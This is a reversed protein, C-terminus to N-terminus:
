LLMLAAIKMLRPDIKSIDASTKWPYTYLGWHKRITAIAREWTGESYPGIRDGIQLEHLLGEKTALIPDELAVGFNEEMQERTRHGYSDVYMGTDPHRLAVHGLKLESDSNLGCDDADCQFYVIPWGTLHHLALAFTGCGGNMFEHMAKPKPWTLPSEPKTALFPRRRTARMNDRYDVGAVIMPHLPMM